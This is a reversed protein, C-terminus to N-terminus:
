ICMLQLRKFIFGSSVLHLVQNYREDRLTVNNWGNSKLIKQWLSLEMDLNVFVVVVVVFHKMM